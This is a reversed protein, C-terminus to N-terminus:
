PGTQRLKDQRLTIEKRSVNGVNDRAEVELVVRDGEARTRFTVRDVGAGADEAAVWLIRDRVATEKGDVAVATDPASFFAQPHNNAIEIPFRAVRERDHAWPVALRWVGAESPGDEAARGGRRRGRLRRREKESDPALRDSLAKRDGVEWRIVPAEGDVVFSVPATAARGGGNVAMVGATHEGPLWPAPWSSAERGDIVPRWPAPAGAADMAIAEAVEVTAAPSVFLREGVRVQPGVIQVGPAPRSGARAAAPVLLLLALVPAAVTRSM